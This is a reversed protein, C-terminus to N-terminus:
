VQNELRIPPDTHSASGYSSLRGDLRPHTDRSPSTLISALPYLFNCTIQLRRAALRKGSAQDALHSLVVYGREGGM